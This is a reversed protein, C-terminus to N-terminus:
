LVPLEYRLILRLENQSRSGRNREQVFAGRMRLWLGRLSGEQIKYDLTLDLEDQDPLSARSVAERANGGRAYNAFVSVGKLGLRGFDYSAGVLWADEGARDFDLIMIPLPSPRSGWPSQISEGGATKSVALHLIASRYSLSLQGTTVHTNFSTGTILDEGVSRQDTHQLRVRLGWEAGLDWKSDVIGYALNLVDPTHYNIAGVSLGPRPAYLVGATFMGRKPASGPAAREGMPIFRDSNRDKIRSIYGAVYRLRNHEKDTTGRLLYAEFTNPTERDDRKNVYPLDLLQRYATLEHGEVWELKAYAQAAVTYPRQRPRLLTTGDRQSPAHIPQSFQLQAGLSVRKDKWGELWGTDYLVSGGYVWAERRSNDRLKGYLYYSRFDIELRTEETLYRQQILWERLQQSRARLRERGFGQELPHEFDDVSEAAPKDEHHAEGQAFARPAALWSVAFILLLIRV